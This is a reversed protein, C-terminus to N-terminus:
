FGCLVTDQKCTGPGGGWLSVPSQVWSLLCVGM